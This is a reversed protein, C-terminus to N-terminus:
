IGKLADEHTFGARRFADYIAYAQTLKKLDESSYGDVPETYVGAFIKFKNVQHGYDKRSPKDLKLWATLKPHFDKKHVDRAEVWETLQEQSFKVGFASSFISTFSAEAHIELLTSAVENGKKTQKVLYKIFDPILLYNVAQSNIESKIQPLSIEKGLLSKVYKTAHNQPLSFLEAIQSVAVAFEGNPLLLGEIEVDAALKIKTVRAKEM